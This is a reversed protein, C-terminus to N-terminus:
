DSLLWGSMPRADRLSSQAKTAGAAIRMVVCTSPIMIPAPLALEWASVSSVAARVLMM